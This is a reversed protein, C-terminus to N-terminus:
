QSRAGSFFINMFAKGLYLLNTLIPKEKKKQLYRLESEVIEDFSKPLDAYYPPILGPKFNIRMQQLEKPYLNYYHKSIARVGVLNIDGRLWNYIQPIEDLFYKRLFRGWITVRFDNRIKGSNDLSNEEFVEKQIFESYPYMTRLKYINIINGHYAVRKLKVIPGYSPSAEESITKSKKCAFYIQNGIQEYQVMKFGCFSLRGFIEAKSLKRNKGKTIIFYIQKTISLKPFIRHFIFHFPLFIMYLFHPMQSRLHTYFHDLPIFNGIILGGTSLKHYAHILYYNIRRFDNIDHMNIILDQSHDQLLEINKSTATNLITIKEKQIHNSELIKSLFNLIKSKQTLRLTSLISYIHQFSLRNDQQSIKPSHYLDEQDKKIKPKLDQYHKHSLPTKNKGFFYLYFSFIELCAHILSGAFILNRDAETLRFSYYFLLTFLMMLIAAKIYPAIEYYHNISNPHKYRNTLLTSIGWLCILLLLNRENELHLLLTGERLFLLVAFIFILSLLGFLLWKINFKHLLQHTSEKFDEIFPSFSKQSKPILGAIIVEMLFLILTTTFIFERSVFWLNTFSVTFVILLLSLFSSWFIIRITLWFSGQLMIQYKRYYLSIISWYLIFIFFLTIYESPPIIQGFKNYVMIIYVITLLILNGIVLLHKKM